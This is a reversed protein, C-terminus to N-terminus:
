RLPAPVPVTITLRPEPPDPEVPLWPHRAANEYKRAMAAHYAVLRKWEIVNRAMDARDAKLRSVDFRDASGDEGISELLSDTGEIYKQANNEAEFCDTASEAHYRARDMFGDHLRKLSYGGMPLAVVAVAIMWRRTTM